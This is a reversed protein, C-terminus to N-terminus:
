ASTEPNRMGKINGYLSKERELSNVALFVKQHQSNLLFCHAEERSDHWNQYESRKNEKRFPVGFSCKLKVQKETEGIVDIAEIGSLTTRYKIM